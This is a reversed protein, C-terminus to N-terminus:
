KKSYNIFCSDFYYIDMRFLLCVLPYSINKFASAFVITKLQDTHNLADEEKHM